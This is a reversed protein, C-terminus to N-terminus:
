SMEHGPPPGITSADAGFRQQYGAYADKWNSGNDGPPITGDLAHGLVQEAVLDVHEGVLGLRGELLRATM